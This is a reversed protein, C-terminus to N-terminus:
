NVTYTVRLEGGIGNTGTAPKGAPSGDNPYLLTDDGNFVFVAYNVTGAVLSQGEIMGGRLDKEGVKGAVGELGGLFVKFKSTVLRGDVEDRDYELVVGEIAFRQAKNVAFQISRDALPVLGPFVLSTGDAILLKDDGNGIELNGNGVPLHESVEHQLAFESVFPETITQHEILVETFAGSLGAPQAPDPLRVGFGFWFDGHDGPDADGDDRILLSAFSVTVLYDNVTPSLGHATDNGDLRGDEDTDGVTPDSMRPNGADDYKEKGDPLGDFDADAVTPDSYVRKPDKGALRVVWYDKPAVARAPSTLPEAPGTRPGVWYGERVEVEEGDSLGDGDTDWNTPDLVIQGLDRLTFGRVEEFDSLGDGDSDAAAPNSTVRITVSGGKRRVTITRGATEEVNALGDRDDDAFTNRDRNDTPNGGLRLEVGDPATDGDTDSRAPDTRVTGTGPPKLAYGKLEDFDSVGDGDTDGSGPDTAFDELPHDPFDGVPDSVVNPPYEYRDKKGDNNTDRGYDATVTGRGFGDALGDGNADALRGPAEDADGVGDGDTDKLTPSSFVQRSGRDTDVAWGVRVELPDPLGDGDTDADRDSTGYLYELNSTM